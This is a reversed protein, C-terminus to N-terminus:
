FKNFEFKSESDTCLSSENKAAQYCSLQVSNPCDETARLELSRLIKQSSLAVAICRSDKETDAETPMFSPLVHRNFHARPKIHLLVANSDRINLICDIKSIQEYPSQIILHHKSNGMMATMYKTKLPEEDGGFITKDALIWSNDLLIGNGIIEGDSFIEASWPWEFDRLHDWSNLNIPKVFINKGDDSNSPVFNIESHIDTSNSKTKEQKISHITFTNSPVASCEIELAKCNEMDNKDIETVIKIMVNSRAISSTEVKSTSMDIVNFSKAFKFGILSCIDNAIETGNRSFDGTDDCLVKWNSEINRTVIGKTHM